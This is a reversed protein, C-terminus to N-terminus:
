YDEKSIQWEPEVPPKPPTPIISSDDAPKASFILGTKAISLLARQEDYTLEKGGDGVTEDDVTDLMAQLKERAAFWENSDKNDLLVEELKGMEAVDFVNVENTKLSLNKM